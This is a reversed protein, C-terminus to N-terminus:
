RIWRYLRGAIKFLRYSPRLPLTYLKHQRTEGGWKEKYKVLSPQDIPSSMLNFREYGDERASQIAENFQLDSPSYQRYAM